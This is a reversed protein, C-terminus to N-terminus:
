ETRSRRRSSAGAEAFQPAQAEVFIPVAPDPMVVVFGTRELELPGPLVHRLAARQLETREIKKAGASRFQVHSGDFPRQHGYREEVLVDRSADGANGVHIDGVPQKGGVLAVEYGAEGARIAGAVTAQPAFDGGMADLAVTVSM